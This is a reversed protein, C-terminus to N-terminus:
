SAFSMSYWLHVCFAYRIGRVESGREHRFVDLLDPCLGLCVEGARSCNSIVKTDSLCRCVLCSLLGVLIGCAQAITVGPDGRHEARNLDRRRQIQKLKLNVWSILVYYGSMDRCSGTKTELSNDSRILESIGKPLATLQEDSGFTFLTESPRSLFSPYLPLAAGPGGRSRSPGAPITLMMGQHCLCQGIKRPRKCPLM